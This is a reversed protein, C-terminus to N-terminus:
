APLRGYPRSGKSKMFVYILMTLYLFIPLPFQIMASRFEASDVQFSLSLPIQVSILVLGSFKL